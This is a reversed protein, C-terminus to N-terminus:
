ALRTIIWDVCSIPCCCCCGQYSIDLILVGQGKGKSGVIICIKYLQVNVKINGKVRYNNKIIGSPRKPGEGKLM